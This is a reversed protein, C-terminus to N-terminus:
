RWKGSEKTRGSGDGFVQSFTVSGVYGICYRIEGTSTASAAGCRQVDKTTWACFMYVHTIYVYAHEGYQDGSVAAARDIHRSVHSGNLLDQKADPPIHQMDRLHWSNYRAYSM